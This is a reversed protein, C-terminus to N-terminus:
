HVASETVVTPANSAEICPEANSMARGLMKVSSCAVNKVIMHTRVCHVVEKTSSQYSM